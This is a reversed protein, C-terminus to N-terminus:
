TTEQTPTNTAHMDMSRILTGDFDAYTALTQIHLYCLGYPVDGRLVLTKTQDGVGSVSCIGAATDFAFTIATWTDPTETVDLVFPAEEGVTEDCANYWHDCLCIRVGSSLVRLSVTVSGTHAAPFNWVMGQKPYALRPDDTRCIQLVERFDGDPSPVLLAGNTRNYACHGSFGRYNGLNSKVFMHTTVNDLGFRFTEERETEYLWDLDLLVVKRASVNQGFCVLIKNYPLELIEAQHVSKDRSDVGGVSRFDARNRLGNLYLERFGQWTKGDDASIALHNADRNTFVDEWKGHVEGENLTPFDNTHDLEPMPQTNCWFFLIRGDSLKQLIPMTITGHFVTPRPGSWTDGRDTSRYEYHFDQSTRVHILLSGDSLVAVSPECSDQQWRASKHPPKIEHRPATAEIVHIVWTEGDDDSTCVVPHTIGASDPCQGLILWRGIEHYYKPTKLIHIITDSIKVWRNEVGDYGSDNLVAWTGGTGNPNVWGRRYENPYAAIYRGSAPNCGAVGLVRDDTVPVTKWSLGCDRSSIYVLQGADDPEKKGTVGYIRIEGDKTVCVSRSADSPPVAVVQPAYVNLFLSRTAGDLLNQMTQLYSFM